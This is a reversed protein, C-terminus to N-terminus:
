PKLFTLWYYQTGAGHSDLITFGYRAAIARMQNESFGAGVWTDAEHEEVPHGQVQFKFVSHAKLTRWTEQIYNEVITRKPIHQFVIASIAFDFTEDPFMRLDMGNNVHLEVNAYQRVAARAHEIMEASVDIAVVSGFVECLPRTMRGAGCGIELVKLERPARGNCIIPLDPIINADIWNQGSGFFEEDTWQEKGSAVYHRANQGARENWDRRMSQLVQRQRWSRWASQLKRM